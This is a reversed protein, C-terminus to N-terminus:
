FDGWGADLPAGGADVEDFLPPASWAPAYVHLSIAGESASANAVKHVGHEDTIFAVEGARLSSTAGREAVVAGAAGGQRPALIADLAHLQLM